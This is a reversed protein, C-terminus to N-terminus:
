PVLARALMMYTETLTRIIKIKTSDVGIEEFTERLATEQLTENKERKGGPFSIQSSHTGNYSARQMLLFRTRKKEDPYFLALVAAKRSNSDKIKEEPFNLNIEPALKNQSKLGGLDATKYRNVKDLFTNFKM